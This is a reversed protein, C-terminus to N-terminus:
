EKLVREVSRALDKLHELNHVAVSAHARQHLVRAGTAVPQYADFRLLPNLWLLKRTHRNLWMLEADLTTADGTDLGDSILLVVTRKGVLRRAHELRLQALSDGLRTGGAFDRVLEQVNDLMDDTDPLAFAPSLDTLGTGFAFVDRRGVRWARGRAAGRQLAAHLYALLMRVYREMSGSVDVLVLLPLVEQARGMYPLQGCEGGLRATASVMRSWDLQASQHKPVYRRAAIKPFPLPIGRVLQQVLAFESASLTNFDSRHLRKNQSATMAADFRLSDDPKKETKSQTQTVPRLADQTRMRQKNANAKGQSQPLLQALLKNAVEPDRFYADFLEQFVVRQSPDSVFTAELASNWDAKSDMGTLMLAQTAVAIRESDIPMGARRLARGFGVLNTALKGRRADGLEM